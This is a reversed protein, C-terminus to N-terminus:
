YKKKSNKTRKKVRRRKFTSGRKGGTYEYGPPQNGQHSDYGELAYGPPARALTNWPNRVGDYPPPQNGDARPPPPASPEAPPRTVVNSWRRKAVVTQPQFRAPGQANPPWTNNVSTYPPSITTNGGGIYRTKPRTSRRSRKYKKKSKRKLYPM